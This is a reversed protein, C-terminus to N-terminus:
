DILKKKSSQPPQIYSRSLFDNPMKDDWIWPGKPVIAYVYQELKLAKVVAQAWKWGGASWIFVKHGRAAHDKIKQIHAFHPIVRAFIGHEEDEIITLDPHQFNIDDMLVLTEDCDVFAGQDSKIVIM